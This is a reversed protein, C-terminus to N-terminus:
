LFSILLNRKLFNAIRAGTQAKKNKKKTWNAEAWCASIMIPPPVRREDAGV